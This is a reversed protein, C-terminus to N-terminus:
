TTGVEAAQEAAISYCPEGLYSKARDERIGEDTKRGVGDVVRQKDCRKQTLRAKGSVRVIELIRCGQVRTFRGKAIDTKTL